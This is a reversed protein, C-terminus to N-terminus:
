SCKCLHSSDKIVFIVIFYVVYAVQNLMM